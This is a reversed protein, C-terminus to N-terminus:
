KSTKVWEKFAKRYAVPDYLYCGVCTGEYKETGEYFPFDEFGKLISASWRINTRKCEKCKQRKFDNAAKCLPQFDDLTQTAMDSVRLDTKRGDKHDPEIKMNHSTGDKTGLMVCAEKIITDRIDKRINQKFTDEEKYGNLRISTIKNGKGARDVEINYKKDLKSGRRAFDLGNGLNLSAYADKFESVYVWRSEGQDNPQALELFLTSKSKKSM